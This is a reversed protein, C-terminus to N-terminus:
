NCFKKVDETKKDDTTQEGSERIKKKLEDEDNGEEESTINGMATMLSSVTNNNAADNGIDTLNDIVSSNDIVLSPTGNLGSARTITGNPASLGGGPGVVIDSGASLNINGNLSAISGNITLGDSGGSPSAELSISDSASVGGSGITLPSHATISVSGGSTVTSEGTTIAGTNDIIVNGTGGNSLSGVTLVGTNDFEINNATTNVANLNHVATTLPNGSGIGNVANISLNEATINRVGSDINDNIVNTATINVSRVANIGGPASVGGSNNGVINAPIWNSQSSVTETYNGADYSFATSRLNNMSFGPLNMLASGITSNASQNSLGITVDGAFSYNATGYNFKINGNTFLLAEFQSTLSSNNWRAVDWRIALGSVNGSSVNYIYIDKRPTTSTIWDNWAPAIIKFLALDTISDWYQSTGTGFTIMGNSGIYATTYTTGYFPFAFPLSYTVYSDDVDLFNLPGLLSTLNLNPTAITLSQVANIAVDRQSGVSRLTINNGSISVDNSGLMTPDALQNTISGANQIVDGGSQIVIGGHTSVNADLTVDGGASFNLSGTGGTIASNVNIDNHASLTLNNSSEWTVGDDVTIDGAQGGESSTQIIVSENGLQLGLAAGTMDGNEGAAIVFNTPDLLLTGNSGKLARLDALGRYVLTQKGSVEANGGDGGQVGGRASIRGYFETKGDSWLIVKGGDGTETADAKIVTDKGVYTAEANPVAPNKGQYDGGILIAGGGTKGSADVQANDILGVQNGLIQIDGGKGDSGDATVTGSVLTTGAESQIKIQGGQPGGASTASGADLTVDKSAKFFIRGNEGAVASDASVIGRQAILGGYIGVKGSRAVIQGLNVAKDAPASVVVAIDPNLSDVLQVSHGAALIVEGQPSNIIGSNEIDPAILYVNGGAPTTITGQNQVPGALAGATFNYRGALFDQNSIALTSAVLGNVDIRAGQGFLIGNPNILFVRGNSQLLGLIRSPDQGIVRNLVASTSSQQIFRVAENANISFGQWNIIASPSNTITLNNGQTAFSAQGNVVQQGAPLAFVYGASFFILTIVSVLKNAILFLRRKRCRYAKMKLEKVLVGNVLVIFEGVFALCQEM